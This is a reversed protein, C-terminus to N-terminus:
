KWVFNVKILELYELPINDFLHVVSCSSGTLVSSTTTTSAFSDTSFDTIVERWYLLENCHTKSRNLNHNVNAETSLLGTYVTVDIPRRIWVNRSPLQVFHIRGNPINEVKHM